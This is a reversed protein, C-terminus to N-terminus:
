EGRQRTLTLGEEVSLSRSSVLASYEGLSHGAVGDPVIGNQRLAADTAVSVLFIAPQQNETKILEDEPGEFCLRSLPFGLVADAREFYEREIRAYGEGVKKGM